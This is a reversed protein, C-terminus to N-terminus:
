AWSMIKAVVMFILLSLMAQDGYRTALGCFYSTWTKTAPSARASAVGTSNSSASASSNSTFNSDSLIGSAQATVAQAFSHTTFNSTVNSMEVSRSRAANAETMGMAPMRDATHDATHGTAAVSRATSATMEQSSFRAQLLNGREVGRNELSAPSAVCSLGVPEALGLGTSSLVSVFVLIAAVEPM